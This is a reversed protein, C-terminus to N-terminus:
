QLSQMIHMPLAQIAVLECELKAVSFWDGATMAKAQQELIEEKLQQVRTKQIM